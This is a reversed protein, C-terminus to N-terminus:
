QKIDFNNVRLLTVNLEAERLQVNSVEPSYNRINFLVARFIQKSIICKNRYTYTDVKM